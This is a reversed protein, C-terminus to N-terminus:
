KKSSKKQPAKGKGPTEPADEIKAMFILDKKGLDFKVDRSMSDDTIMAHKLLRDQTGMFDLIKGSLDPCYPQLLISSVRIVEFALFLM